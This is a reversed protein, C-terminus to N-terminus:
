NQKRQNKEEIANIRKEKKRGNEKLSNETADM